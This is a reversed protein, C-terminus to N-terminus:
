FNTAQYTSPYYPVKRCRYESNITLVPKITENCTDNQCNFDINCNKNDAVGFDCTEYTTNDNTTLIIKKGKLNPDDNVTCSVDPIETENTITFIDDDNATLIFNESTSYLLIILLVILIIIIQM